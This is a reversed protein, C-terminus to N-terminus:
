HRANTIINPIKSEVFEISRGKLKARKRDALDEQAARMVQKLVEMVMM